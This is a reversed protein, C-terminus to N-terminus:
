YYWVLNIDKDFLLGSIQEREIQEQMEDTIFTQYPMEPIKFIYNDGLKEEDFELLSYAVISGGKTSKYESEQKDLCDVFNLVNLAYYRGADTEVPLLEIKDKLFVALRELAKQSMAIVDSEGISFFDAQKMPEGRLMYLTRWVGSVPKSEEFYEKVLKEFWIKDDEIPFCFGTFDSDTELTWIAM